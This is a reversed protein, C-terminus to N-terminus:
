DVTIKPETAKKPWWASVIAKQETTGGGGWGGFVLNTFQFVRKDGPRVPFVVCSAESAENWCGFVVGRPDGALAEIAGNTGECKVRVWDGLRKAECQRSAITLPEVPDWDKSTPAPAKTLPPPTPAVDHIEPSANEKAPAVVDAHVIEGAPEFAPKSAARRDTEKDITPAPKSCGIVLPLLASVIWISTRNM